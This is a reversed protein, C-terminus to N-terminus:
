GRSSRIRWFRRSPTSRRRREGPDRGLQRYLAQKEVRETRATTVAANLQALKQVVINQQDGLSVSIRRSRPVAAARGRQCEGREPARGDASEAVRLRRPQGPPALRWTRISMPRRSATPSERPLSPIRRSSRSTSSAARAWTAGPRRSWRARGADAHDSRVPADRRGDPSETARADQSGACPQAASRAPHHLLRAPGSGRHHDPVARGRALEARPAAARASRLDAHGLPQLRGGDRRVRRDGRGDALPAPVPDAARRPHPRRRRLRQARVEIPMARERRILAQARRRRNPRWCRRGHLRGSRRGSGGALHIAHRRRPVGARDDDLDGSRRMADSVRSM